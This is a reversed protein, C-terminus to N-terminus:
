YPGRGDICQISPNPDYQPGRVAEETSRSKVIRNIYVFSMKERM